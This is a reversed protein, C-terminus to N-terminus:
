KPGAWCLYKKSKQSYTISVNSAHTKPDNEELWLQVEPLRDFEM